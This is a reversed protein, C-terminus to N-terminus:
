ATICANDYLWCAIYDPDYMALLKLAEELMEDTLLKKDILRAALTPDEPYVSEAIFEVLYKSHGVMADFILERFYEKEDDDDLYFDDAEADYKYMGM